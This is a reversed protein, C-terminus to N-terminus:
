ICQYVEPPIRDNGVTTNNKLERVIQRLEPVHSDDNHGLVTKLANKVQDRNDTSGVSNAIANFHYKCQNTINSEESTGGM